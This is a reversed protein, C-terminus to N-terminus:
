SIDADRFRYYGISLPVLIWALIVLAGAWEQVILPESTSIGTFGDFAKDVATLPKIQVFADLWTPADAESQRLEGNFLFYM